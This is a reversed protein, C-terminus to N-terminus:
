SQLESTHEESRQFVHLSGINGTSPSKSATDIAIFLQAPRFGMDLVRFVVRRIMDQGIAANEPMGVHVIKIFHQLIEGWGLAMGKIYTPSASGGTIIGGQPVAILFSHEPVC